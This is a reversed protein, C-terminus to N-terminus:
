PSAAGIELVHFADDAHGIQVRVFSRQSMNEVGAALGPMIRM